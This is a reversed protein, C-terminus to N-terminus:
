NCDSISFEFPEFNNSKIERKLSSIEGEIIWREKELKGFLDVSLNIIDNKDFPIEGIYDDRNVYLSEGKVKWVRGEVSMGSQYKCRVRCGREIKNEPNTEINKLLQILENLRELQNNLDFIEYLKNLNKMM